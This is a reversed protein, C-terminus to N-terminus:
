LVDEGTDRDIVSIRVRLKDHKSGIVGCAELVACLMHAASRADTESTDPEECVTLDGGDNEVLFGNDAKYVHCLPARM